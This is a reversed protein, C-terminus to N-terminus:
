TDILDTRYKILILGATAAALGWGVKSGAATFNGWLGDLLGQYLLILASLCLTSIIGVITFRLTRNLLADHM